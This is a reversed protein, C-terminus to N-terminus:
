GYSLTHEGANRLSSLLRGKRFRTRTQVAYDGKKIIVFVLSNTDFERGYKKKLPEVIKDVPLGYLMQSIANSVDSGIQVVCSYVFECEYGERTVVLEGPEAETFIHNLVTGLPLLMGTQAFSSPTFYHYAKM